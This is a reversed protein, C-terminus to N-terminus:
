MGLRKANLKGAVDKYWEDRWAEIIPDSVTKSNPNIGPQAEDYNMELLLEVFHWDNCKAAAASVVDAAAVEKHEMGATMSTESVCRFYKTAAEQADKDAFPLMGPEASVQSAFTAALAAFVIKRM